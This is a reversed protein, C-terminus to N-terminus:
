NIETTMRKCLGRADFKGISNNGVCDDNFEGPHVIGISFGIDRDRFKSNKDTSTGTLSALRCLLIIVRKTRCSWQKYRMHFYKRFNYITISVFINFSLNSDRLSSIHDELLRMPVKPM